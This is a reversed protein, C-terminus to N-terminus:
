TLLSGSFDKYGRIRPTQIEQVTSVKDRSTALGKVSLVHGIFKVQRQSFKCQDKNLKLRAKRYRELVQVVREDHVNSNPGWVLIGEIYVHVEM